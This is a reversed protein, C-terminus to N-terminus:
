AEGGRRRAWRRVLGALGAAGLLATVALAPWYRRVLDSTRTRVAMTGVRVRAALDLVRLDKGTGLVVANGALKPLRDPDALVEVVEPLLASDMARLILVTRDGNEPHIVQELTGYATGVRAKLLDQQPGSLVRDLNGATTVRRSKLLTQWADNPGTGALLAVHRDRYRSFLDPTSPVVDLKLATATTVRGLEATFALVATADTARPTTDTAVVLGEGDAAEGLPWLRHQLLALDPLDAWTDRPAEVTTTAFVTAWIQRDSVHICPGYDKPFLHFVVQFVTDPTFVEEPIEVSLRKKEEGEAETLGQGKLSVGNAQIEITSLRDDLLPSYAYDVLLRAQQPRVHADGELHVPLTIPAAYYGRVTRDEFGLDALTFHPQPPAPLHAQRTPWPGAVQAEDVIALAGSLAQYRYQGTLAQGALALGKDDAGTVVLIALAPDAPNPVVAVLGQGAKLPSTDVLRTVVANRSPTGVVIGHSRALAPDDVPPEFLLGRWAAMRGMDYGLAGLVQLEAPNFTADQPAILTASVPGYGRDDFLPYPWDLLEPYIVRREYQFRIASRAAVRTWLSPDFPDECPDAVHQHVEFVLTNFPKLVSRPIRVSLEGDVTNDADLHTSAVSAGNVSVTLTSREPVLAASHEFQLTVEPDRSLDWARPVSFSLSESAVLGELMLDGAVHLDAGLEVDRVIGQPQPDEALSLSSLLFLTALAMGM